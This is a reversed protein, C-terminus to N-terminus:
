WLPCGKSVWSLWFFEGATLSLVLLLATNIVRSLAAGLPALEWVIDHMQPLFFFCFAEHLAETTRLVCMPVLYRGWTSSPASLLQLIYLSPQLVPRSVAFFLGRSKFTGRSESSPWACPTDSPM